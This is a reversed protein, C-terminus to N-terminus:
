QYANTSASASGAGSVRVWKDILMSYKHYETIMEPTYLSNKKTNVSITVDFV